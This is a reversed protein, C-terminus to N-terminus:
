NKTCIIADVYKVALNIANGSFSGSVGGVSHSHSGGGGILSSYNDCTLGGLPGNPNGTSSTAIVGWTGSSGPDYAGRPNQYHQHSPIQTTSLTTGDVSGSIAVSGSPTQSAFATTFAVSGGSSVTGSVIRLAANDNSTSKTWGTPASTQNFVLATGAAFESGTNNGLGGGAPQMIGSSNIQSSNIANNNAQTTM